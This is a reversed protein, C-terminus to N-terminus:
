NAQLVNYFPTYTKIAQESNRKTSSGLTGFCKFWIGVCVGFFMLEFVRTLVAVIM